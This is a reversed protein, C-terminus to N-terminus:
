SLMEELAATPAPAAIHLTRTPFAIEAGHANVIEAVCLLVDQKAALYETWVTTRTFCYVMFDCSSQNFATFYVMLTQTTDIDDRGRLMSEVAAVIPGMAALDDYRIGITEYIRRHSMRSPNVVAMSAFLSNPVYVPRKDFRRIRTLRWGIDEVTGEIDRDPSSVWDGVAFPRDLYLMLGGLFNALIDRAAFGIAIGGIGGFALVGSISFGLSQLAILAGTILVSARVLRGIAKATTLDVPEGRAQRQAVLNEELERVFRVVFWVLSGIVGVTRLPNVATFLTAGTDHLIIDGAFGIGIVWIILRLPRRAANVLADDWVNRTRTTERGLRELLRGAIANVAVAVFIVLFVQVMWDATDHRQMFSSVAHLIESWDM